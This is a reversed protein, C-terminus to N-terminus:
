HIPQWAVCVSISTDEDFVCVLGETFQLWANSEGWVRRGAMSFVLEHSVM